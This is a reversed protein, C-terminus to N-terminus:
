ILYGKDKTYLRAKLAEEGVAPADVDRFPTQNNMSINADRKGAIYAMEIQKGVYELLKEGKLTDLELLRNLVSIRDSINEM